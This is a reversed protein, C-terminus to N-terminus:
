CRAWKPSTGSPRRPETVVRTKPTVGPARDRIQLRGGDVQICVLEPTIDVPSETRLPIPLDHYETAQQQVEAIRENGIRNVLREIRKASVNVEALVKLNSSAEAFSATSASAAHIVKPALRPSFQSDPEVGM